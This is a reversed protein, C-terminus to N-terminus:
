DCRCGRLRWHAVANTTVEYGWSEIVRAIPKPGFQDRAALVKERQEATMEDLVRHMACRKKPWQAAKEFESLDTM